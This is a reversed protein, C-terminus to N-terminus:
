CRHGPRSGNAGAPAYYGNGQSHRASEPLSRIQFEARPMVDFLLPLKGVIRQRAADFAPIIEDRSAFKQQADGRVAAFLQQLDGGLHLEAQVKALEAEIRAVEKIGLEHIEAATLQTTTHTRVDYAYLAAGGPMDGLGVSDRAHPLYDNKLFEYLRRYAPEIVTTIKAQFARTLRTRDAMAFGAPFGRVPQWFETQTAPLGFHAQLQPLIRLVVLRPLVVGTALGERLRGIVDDTWRSYGDARILAHAYDDLTKFPYNGAASADSAFTLHEGQFQDIPLRRATDFLSSAYFQQANTLQERLMELSVQDTPSLPVGVFEGSARLYTDILALMRKRWGDELSDDFQSENRNDGSSLALIPNLALFHQWYAELMDHLAANAPLSPAAAAPVGPTAAPAASPAVAAKTEIWASVKQKLAWLPIYGSSLALTHYERLDFRAGLATKAREREAVFTRMGVM